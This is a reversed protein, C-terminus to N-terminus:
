IRLDRACNLWVFLIACAPGSASHGYKNASPPLRDNGPTARPRPNASIEHFFGGTPGYNDLTALHVAIRAGEAPSRQGMHGNLDTATLGPDAANVKIRDAMLERAFKAVFMNLTTKSASYGAFDVDWNESTPDLTSAISGLGSSMM